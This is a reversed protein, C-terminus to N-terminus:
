FLTFPRRIETPRKRKTLSTTMREATMPEATMWRRHDDPVTMVSPTMMAECCEHKCLHVEYGFEIFSSSILKKKLSEM